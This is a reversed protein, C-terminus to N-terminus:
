PPQTYDRVNSDNQYGSAAQARRRGDRSPERSSPSSSIAMFAGQTRFSKRFRFPGALARRRVM